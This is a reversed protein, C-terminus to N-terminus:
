FFDYSILIYKILNGIFSSNSNSNGYNSPKRKPRNGNNMCNETDDDHNLNLNNREEDESLIIRKSVLRGSSRREVKLIYFYLNIAKFVCM